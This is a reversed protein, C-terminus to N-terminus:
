PRSTAGSPQQREEAPGGAHSLNRATNILGVHSFAQPFNGLLRKSVPDYEEALLGVDNCVGLLHEFVARAEASRGQLALNDALWFSCVLFTGEGAPLGDVQSGTHYRAVFGDTVLQQQIAAVTGRMRPDSAPLFGVLPLMLLSADLQDSGYSQVFANLTPNFGERCVQDHITARLARWRDRPGELRAVELAKIGRDVAVWAMAKSHTFHRRPGRVEWIGEDPKDWNSELFDMLARQVRWANENPELGAQRAVHFADMVEGYIDLQHQDYAANGVRVPTSRAYGPLWDLEYEQLRREGALGYMIQMEAPKGAVARVLWERWARAEDMYGGTMLAYLTFTADRVWCYRYDWNRVGGLQEPLSTTAAAVIGGTPAYTLAKLTILSRKVEATWAGTYTCHDSWQRWWQATDRLSEFPDPARPPPKHSPHWTLTFPVREGATVTFDAVTQFNESHLPVPTHLYLSDPGALAWLGDHTKRVWPVIAGYGFRITLEMHLDVSGQRGEVIRIIDPAESRPPMCDLVAVTGTATTYETELVLTGEHYWRRAATITGSPALLWRGHEPTGLLAAFCAPSDFRPFCAWDISGSRAVLAVTECDGIIAYDEIPVSM